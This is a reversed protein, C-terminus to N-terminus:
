AFPDFVPEELRKRPDPNLQRLKNLIEQREEPSREAAKQRRLERADAQRQLFSVSDSLRQESLNESRFDLTVESLVQRMHEPEIAHVWSSPPGQPFGDPYAAAIAAALQSGAGTEFIEPQEVIRRWASEVLPPELLARFIVIEPASLPESLPIHEQTRSPRAKPLMQPDGLKLREAAIM